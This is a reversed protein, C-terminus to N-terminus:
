RCQSFRRAAEFRARTGWDYEDEIEDEYERKQFYAAM